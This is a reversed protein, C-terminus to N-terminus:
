VCDSGCMCVKMFSSKVNTDIDFGKDLSAVLNAFDSSSAAQISAMTSGVDDYTTDGYKNM